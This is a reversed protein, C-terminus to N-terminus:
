RVNREDRLPRGMLAVHAHEIPLTGDLIGAVARFLPLELGHQDAFHVAVAATPVGEVTMEKCIDELRDGKALRVGTTRNRSLSGFATLMLDGVGSLGSVTAPEGGMAITLKQLELQAKTVYAAMTNIGLGRGEIMGAGIALPNKLAGGLQVGVVDTTSYVRFWLSSLLRQIREAKDLETCAVVVATPQQTMMEKAFSPGSLYAVCQDRGMAEAIADGLLAKTPLYLGKSTICVPVDAPIADKNAALFDPTKQAPLAHIIVAAGACAEAVSSTARISEPLEYDSLAKPNRHTENIAAAQATDRAYVTVAHGNRAAIIAMATGFAGGGLVAINASEVEPLHNTPEAITSM